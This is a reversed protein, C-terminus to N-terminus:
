NIKSSNTEWDRDISQNEATKLAAERIQTADLIAQEIISSM